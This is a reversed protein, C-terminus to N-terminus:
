NSIGMIFKWTKFHSMINNIIQCGEVTVVTIILGGILNPDMGGWIIRFVATWYFPPYYLIM